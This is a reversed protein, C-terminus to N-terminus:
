AIRVVFPAADGAGVSITIPTEPDALSAGLADLEPPVKSLGLMGALLRPLGALGRPHLMRAHQDLAARSITTTSM